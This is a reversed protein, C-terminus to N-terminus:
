FSVAQRTTYDVPFSKFVGMKGVRVFGVSRIDVEKNTLSIMGNKLLNKVDLDIMIPLVFEERKAIPVQINQATHGLLTGNIFIDLDVRSLDLGFNNPNYLVLDTTLTAKDFGINSVKLNRFSRYEFGQPEQCSSLFFSTILILAPVLWRLRQLPTTIMNLFLWNERAAFFGNKFLLIETGSLKADSGSM